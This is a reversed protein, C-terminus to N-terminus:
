TKPKRPSRPGLSKRNTLEEQRKAQLAAESGAAPQAPERALSELLDAIAVGAGDIVGDAVAEFVSVELAQGRQDPTLLNAVKRVMKALTTSLNALINARILREDALQRLLAIESPSEVEPSNAKALADRELRLEKLQNRVGVLYAESLKLDGRLKENESELESRARGAVAALRSIEMKAEAAEQSSARARAEWQATHELRAILEANLSRSSMTASEQLKAHLDRPLRLATKMYDDQYSTAM